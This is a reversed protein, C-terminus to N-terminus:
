RDKFLRAQFKVKKSDKEAKHFFHFCDVVFFVCDEFFENILYTPHESAPNFRSFFPLFFAWWITPMRATILLSKPLFASVSGYNSNPNDFWNTSFKVKGDNFNFYPANDFQGDADPNNGKDKRIVPFQPKSGAILPVIDEWDQIKNPLVGIFRLGVSSLLLCYDGWSLVSKSAM